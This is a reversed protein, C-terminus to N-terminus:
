ESTEGEPDVVGASGALSGALPTSNETGGSPCAPSGLPASLGRRFRSRECAATQRSFAAPCTKVWSVHEVYAKLNALHM